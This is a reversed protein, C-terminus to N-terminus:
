VNRNAGFFIIGKDLKKRYSCLISLEKNQTICHRADSCEMYQHCCDHDPKVNNKSYKYLASILTDISELRTNDNIILRIYYNQKESNRYYNNFSNIIDASLATEYVLIYDKGFKYEFSKFGFMFYSYGITKINEPDNVNERLEKRMYFSNLKEQEFLSLMYNEIYNIDIVCSEINQQDDLLDYFVNESIIEIDHGQLKLKEAKKHKNSKNDDLLICYENNSIILINTSKTVDNGCSGGYDIIYQFAETRTMRELEGTFVCVKGYLPHTLDFETNETKITRVDIHKKYQYNTKYFDNINPYQLAAEARM